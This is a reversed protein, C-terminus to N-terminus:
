KEGGKRKIGLKKEATLIYGTLRKLEEPTIMRRGALVNSLKSASCNQNPFAARAAVRHEVGAVLLRVRLEQADAPELRILQKSEQRIM